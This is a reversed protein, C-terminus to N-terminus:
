TGFIQMTANSYSKILICDNETVMDVKFSGAPRGDLYLKYGGQGSRSVNFTLKSYGSNNATIGQTTEVQGNVLPTVAEASLGAVPQIM